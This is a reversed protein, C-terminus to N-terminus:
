GPDTLSEMDHALFGSPVGAILIGPIVVQETGVRIMKKGM